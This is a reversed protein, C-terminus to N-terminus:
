PISTGIVTSATAKKERQCLLSVSWLQDHENSKVQVFEM